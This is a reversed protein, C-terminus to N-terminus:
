YNKERSEMKLYSVFLFQQPQDTIDTSEDLALSFAVCNKIDKHLQSLLDVTIEAIRREVTHRSVPIGGILKLLKTNNTDLSKITDIINQKIFDGETYPRKARAINWAIKFSVETVCKSEETFKSMFNGQNNISSKLSQLKKIRLESKAPYESIFESHLKEYHRKLNGVKYNNVTSNCIICVANGNKEIFAYDEEWEENFNQNEDAYKRKRKNPPTM